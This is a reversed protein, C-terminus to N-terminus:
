FTPSPLAVCALCKRPKLSMSRSLALIEERVIAGPHSPMMEISLPADTM